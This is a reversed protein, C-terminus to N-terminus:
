TSLLLKKVNIKFKDLNSHHICNVTCMATSMLSLQHKFKERQSIGNQPAFSRYVNILRTNLTGEVDIIIMNSDTGELDYRRVYSVSKTIYFGVRSKLSNKELELSYNAIRLEDHNLNNNIETEQMSLIDIEHEELMKKILLKKNKLGLCLNLTAVNIPM